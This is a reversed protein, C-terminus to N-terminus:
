RSAAGVTATLAEVFRDVAHDDPHSHDPNLETVVLGGFLPSTAFVGLCTMADALLLGRDEPIDALPCDLFDLVDVDFHVLFPRGQAELGTRAALATERPAAQVEELPHSRFAHRTFTVAEVDGADGDEPRVSAGQGFFVIGDDDLMPTRPGIGALEPAAGAEGVLHAVGMSDLHGDPQVAPVFLDVGGDMYLLNAQGRGRLIGAFAGITITCDGGVVLPVRDDRVIAEVAEAVATAVSVVAALNQSRRHGPDARWIAAPLDGQDELDLGATRLREVLGAARM